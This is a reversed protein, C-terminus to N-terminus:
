CGCCSDDDDDDDDDGGTISDPPVHTHDDDDNDDDDDDDDPTTDDDDTSEVCEDTLEVCIEGAEECPDGAHEECAGTLCSDLGTCFAGDDCATGDDAYADAPCEANGGSCIEEIDCDNEAERCVTLPSLFADAPCSVDEGSCFEAADCEGTAERCETTAPELIDEPCEPGDGPCMEAIDCAGGATRCTTTAPLTIDDPCLGSVGNCIEAVDCDGGLDRCVEGADLITCTGNAVAGAAVSCAQCDEPDDEGCVTDCCFGDVCFGTQCEANFNCTAGTALYSVGRAFVRKSGYFTSRDFESYTVVSRGGGRSVISASNENVHDGGAIEFAPVVISGTSRLYSGYLDTRSNAGLQQWVVLYHLGDFVIAPRRRSLDGTSVNLGGPDVTGGVSNIRSGYLNSQGFREDEWVAFFNTSDAAAVPRLQDGAANSVIVGDFSNVSGDVQVRTSRINSSGTRPDEWVVLFQAGGFVVDPYNQAGDFTCLAIGAPDVVAGSNNARAAYIDYDGNRNDRWVALFYDGGYAIDPDLENGSATSIARGAPDDVVGATTVRTGYVDWNVGSRYDSWVVFYLGGGFAVAPKEQKDTAVSILLGSPDLIQGLPTVRTGYIDWNVGDREDEWVILFNTGDYAIDSTTQFNAALSLLRGGSDLVTGSQNIRAGYIDPFGGSRYDHWAAFYNTGDFCVHPEYQNGAADSIMLGAPDLVAGAQNVRAGYIDYTVGTRFDDWVVLFNTGDFSSSSHQQANAATSIAFEPVTIVGAPTIIAGYIDGTDSRTDLWTLLFNTACSLEPLHQDGAGTSVDLVGSAPTLDANFVRAYLDYDANMDPWALLYNNGDSRLALSVGSGEAAALLVGAGDLVTGASDLRTGYVDSAGNRPDRWAVLWNGGAAAVGPFTQSGTANSIMISDQDLVTGDAQVRTGYINVSGDRDDEWAVFFQTGNFALRPASQNGVKGCVAIGGPTLLSGTPTVRTGYIDSATNTESIRRDEWVITYAVQGFIIVPASQRNRAPLYIPNDTGVEPTVFPDLAAPYVTQALVQAPVVMEIAGDVLRAPVTVERGADDIWVAHSYRLGLGTDPDAFHLGTATNEVLELGNAAVRVILDGRGRPASEFMWSQQLGEQSNELWEVAGGRDIAVSGEVLEPQAPHAVLMGDRTISETALELPAGWLHDASDDEAPLVPQVTLSGDPRVRVQCTDEGGVLTGDEERFALRVQQIIEAVNFAPSMEVVGTAAPAEDQAEVAASDDDDGPTPEEVECTVLFALAGLTLLALIFHALRNTM